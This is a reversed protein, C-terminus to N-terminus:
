FHLYFSRSLKHNSGGSRSSTEKPLAICSYRYVHFPHTVGSLSLIIVKLPRNHLESESLLLANQVAEVELFEM